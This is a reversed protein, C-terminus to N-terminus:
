ASRVSSGGRRKALVAQVAKKAPKAAVASPATATPRAAAALRAARLMRTKEIERERADDRQAQWEPRLAPMGFLTDPQTRRKRSTM